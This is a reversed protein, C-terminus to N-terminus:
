IVIKLKSGERTFKRIFKVMIVAAAAGAFGGGGGGGGVQRQWSMGPLLQYNVYTPLLYSRRLGGM